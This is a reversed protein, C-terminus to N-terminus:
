VATYVWAWVCGGNIFITVSLGLSAGALYRYYILLCGFFCFGNKVYNCPSCLLASGLCFCEVVFYYLYRFKQLLRRLLQCRFRVPVKWRLRAVFVDYVCNMRNGAFSCCVTVCKDVSTVGFLWCHVSFTWNKLVIERYDHLEANSTIGAFSQHGERQFRLIWGQPDCKQSTLSDVPLFTVVFVLMRKVDLM